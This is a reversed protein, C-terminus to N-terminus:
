PTPNNVQGTPSGNGGGPAPIHVVLPTATPAPVGNGDYLTATGTKNNAVWFPSNPGFAVGWPNVLNPDTHAAVGPQDSVLNTQTFTTALLTRSELSELTRDRRLRRRRDRSHSHDRIPVLHGLQRM